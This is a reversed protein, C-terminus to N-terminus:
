NQSKQFQSPTIGTANKFFRNFYSVNTFGLQHSIQAMQLDTHILYSKIELLIKQRIFSSATKGTLEKITTNLYSANLNVENAILSVSPLLNEEGKALAAFHRDLAQRFSNFVLAGNRAVPSLEEQYHAYMRKLKLLYQHLLLRIMDHRDPHVSMLEALMEEAVPKLEIAQNDSLSLLSDAEFRFFPFQQNFSTSGSDIRAFAETFCVLYGHIKQSTNWSELKGPYSFYVSNATSDFSQEGLRFAVGANTFFVVRFFNCRFLPMELRKTEPQDEIRMIAFDDSQPLGIQLQRYFDTITQLHPIHRANNM